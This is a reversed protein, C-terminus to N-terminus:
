IQLHWTASGPKGHGWSLHYRQLETSLEATIVCLQHVRRLAIRQKFQVLSLCPCDFCQHKLQLARLNGFRKQVSRGVLQCQHVPWRMRSFPSIDRWECNYVFADFTPNVRQQDCQGHGIRQIAPHKRRRMNAHRRATWQLGACVGMVGLVVQKCIFVFQFHYKVTRDFRLTRQKVM